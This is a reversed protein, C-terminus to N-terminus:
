IAAVRRSDRIRSFFMRLGLFFVTTLAWGIPAWPWLFDQYGLINIPVSWAASLVWIILLSVASLALGLATPLPRLQVKRKHYWHHTLVGGALFSLALFVTPGMGRAEDEARVWLTLTCFLTAWLPAHWWPGFNLLAEYEPARESRKLLALHSLPDVLDDSGGHHENTTEM